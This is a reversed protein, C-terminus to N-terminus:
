LAITKAYRPSETSPCSAATKGQFVAQMPLLKGGASISPVLTFVHKEEQGVVTVQKSSRQTWTSGTGQQYVIQTQDTNVILPALVAYDCITHALHFFVEELVKEHNAPLKQAGKTSCQESWGVTNRLYSRTFSESCRFNSGDSMMKEFLEPTDHQIHGVM